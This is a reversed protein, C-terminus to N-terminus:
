FSLLLLPAIFAGTANAGMDEWDFKDDTAEKIAGIALTFGVAGWYAESKSSGGAKLAAYSASSIAASVYIHAWKDNEVEGAIQRFPAPCHPNKGTNKSNCKALSISPILFFAILLSKM